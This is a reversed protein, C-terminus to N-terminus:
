IFMEVDGLRVMLMLNLIKFVVTFCTWSYPASVHLDVVAVSFVIWVNM